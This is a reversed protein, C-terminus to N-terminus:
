SEAIESVCVRVICGRFLIPYATNGALILYMGVILQWVSRQYIAYNDVFVSFGGNTFQSLQM